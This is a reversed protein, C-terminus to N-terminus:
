ARDFGLQPPWGYERESSGCNQIHKRLILQRFRAKKKKNDTCKVHKAVMLAEFIHDGERLYFIQRCDKWYASGGDQKEVIGICRVEYEKKFHLECTDYDLELVQVKVFKNQKLSAYFSESKGNYDLEKPGVYQGQAGGADLEALLSNPPPPNDFPWVFSM